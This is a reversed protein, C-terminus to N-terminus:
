RLRVKTAAPLKGAVARVLSLAGSCSRKPLREFWDDQEHAVM